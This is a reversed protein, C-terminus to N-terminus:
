ILLFIVNIEETIYINGKDKSIGDITHTLFACHKYIIWSHAPVVRDQIYFRIDSDRDNM